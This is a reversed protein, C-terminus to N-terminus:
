LCGYVLIWVFVVLIKTKSFGVCESCSFNVYTVFEQESRSIGKQKKPAKEEHDGIHRSIEVLEEIAGM